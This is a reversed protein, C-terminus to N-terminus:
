VAIYSVVDLPGDLHPPFFCNEQKSEREILFFLTQLAGPPCLFGFCKGDLFQRMM